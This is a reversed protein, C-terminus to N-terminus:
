AIGSGKRRQETWFNLRIILQVNLQQLSRATSLLKIISFFKQCIIPM